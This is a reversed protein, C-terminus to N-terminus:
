RPLRRTLNSLHFAAVVRAAAIDPDSLAADHTADILTTLASITDHEAQTARLYKSTPTHTPATM